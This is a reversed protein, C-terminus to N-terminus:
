NRCVQAESRSSATGRAIKPWGLAQCRYGVERYIAEPSLRPQKLYHEDIVEHLLADRKADM